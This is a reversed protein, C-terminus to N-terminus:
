PSPPELEGSIPGAGAGETGGASSGTRSSDLSFPNFLGKDKDKVPSAENNQIEEGRLPSLELSTELQNNDRILTDQSGIRMEDVLAPSSSSAVRTAEAGTKKKTKSTKSTKNSNSTTQGNVDYNKMKSFSLPNPPLLFYRWLRFIDLDIFMLFVLIGSTADQAVLVHFVDPNIVFNPSLGCTALAYATTATAGKTLLCTLWDTAAATAVPVWNILKFRTYLLNFFEMFFVALFFLLKEHPAKRKSRWSVEIVKIIAWSM